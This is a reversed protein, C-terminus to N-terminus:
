AAKRLISAQVIASHEAVTHESARHIRVIRRASDIFDAQAAIVVRKTIEAYQKGTAIFLMM